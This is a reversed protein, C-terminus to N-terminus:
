AQAHADRVADLRPGQTFGAFTPRVYLHSCDQFADLSVLMPLIPLTEACTTSFLLHSIARAGVSIRVPTKTARSNRDMVWHM